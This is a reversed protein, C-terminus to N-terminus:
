QFQFYKIVTDAASFQLVLYRLERLTMGAKGFCGPYLVRTGGVTALRVSGTM